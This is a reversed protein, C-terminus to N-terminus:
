GIAQLSKSIVNEFDEPPLPKSFYFGQILDCGMNKLTRYQQEDEVGEAIVPVSLFKAIELIIGVMQRDTESSCMKRVFGMDLKLIDIPMSTLMNLSSYGSGFDDMEITFGDERLKNIVSIIGSDDDSYASETIELMLDGPSIGNEETLALLRAELEPDFLDVRSVNVSVPLTIGFSKKWEAIRAAAERWVYHDIKQILGNKEFLPIFVGPSIMGHEPHKWRILAEASSLVPKDGKINFKPQYYVIFQKENLADDTSHVLKEYFIEKERLKDDFFAFSSNYTSRCNNCALMAHDIRQELSLEKSCNEYIGIRVSINSLGSLKSISNLLESICKDYDEQHAIYLFFTDSDCRCALGMNKRLLKRLSDAIARLLGNGAQRGYLENVLHFRNVNIVATDTQMDSHFTDMDKAYQYFFEKNYLSTVSDNEVATILKNEEALKISRRIREKIVEPIDYPKPIFDVAGLQLSKIEASKESTLIIVPINKYNNEDNSLIELLQYGDMEPMLLDLLIISLTKYESRIIDLAEKGNSAYLLEFDNELMNGLISRNVFEDDVVLIKRKRTEKEIRSITKM